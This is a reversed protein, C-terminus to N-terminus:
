FCLEPMWTERCTPPAPSFIRSLAAKDNPLAIEKNELPLYARDIDISLRPFNSISPNSAAGGKLLFLSRQRSLTVCSGLPYKATIPRTKDM